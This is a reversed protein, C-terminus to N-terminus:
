GRRRRFGIAGRGIVDRTGESKGNEAADSVISSSVFDLTM